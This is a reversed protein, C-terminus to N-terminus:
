DLEIAAIGLGLELGLAEIINSLRVRTGLELALGCWRPSLCEAGFKPSSHLWELVLTTAGLIRVTSCPQLLRQDLSALKHSLVELFDGFLYATARDSPMHIYIYINDLLFQDM